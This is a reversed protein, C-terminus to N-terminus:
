SNHVIQTVVQNTVGGKNDVKLNLASGPVLGHSYVKLAHLPVRCM